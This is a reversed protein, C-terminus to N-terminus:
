ISFKVDEVIKILYFRKKVIVSNGIVINVKLINGCNEVCFKGFMCYITQSCQMIGYITVGFITGGLYPLVM